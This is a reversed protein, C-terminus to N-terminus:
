CVRKAVVRGITDEGTNHSCPRSPAHSRSSLTSLNQTELPKADLHDGPLALRRADAHPDRDFSSADAGILTRATTSPRPPHAVPRLPGPVVQGPGLVADPEDILLPPDVAPRATDAGLPDGESIGPCADRPPQPLEYPQVALRHRGRVGGHAVADTPAFRPAGLLREQLFPVLRSPSSSRPMKTGVLNMAAFRLLEVRHERIENVAFHEAEHRFAGLAAQGLQQGRAEIRALACGDFGDAGVHMMGIQIRYAGDQLASLDYEVFKMHQLM